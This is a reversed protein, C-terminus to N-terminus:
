FLGLHGGAFSQDPQSNLAVISLFSFVHLFRLHINSLSILEDSFAVYLTIGVSHCEPFPLRQLCYFSWLNRPTSLLSLALYASCLSDRHGHFYETYYININHIYTM